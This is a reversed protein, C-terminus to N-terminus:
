LRAHRTDMTSFLLLAHLVTALAVLVTHQLQSLRIAAGFCGCPSPSNVQVLACLLVGLLVTAFLLAVRRTRRFLVACGLLIEALAISVMWGSDRIALDGLVLADPPKMLKSLASFAWWGGCLVLASREVVRRMATPSRIPEIRDTM